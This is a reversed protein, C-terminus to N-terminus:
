QKWKELYPDQGQDEEFETASKRIRRTGAPKDIENMIYPDLNALYGIRMLSLNSIDNVYDDDENGAMLQWGSDEDDHPEERMMYGVKWGDETIRKSVVAYKSMLEKRIISPECYKRHDLFEEIEQKTPERETKIKDIASDWIKKDDANIRRLVALKLLEEKAVDLCLKIEKKLNKGHEDYLYLETDGADYVTMKVAGLNDKDNYFVFFNPLHENVFYDFETGNKGNMYFVTGNDELDESSVEPLHEALSKRILEQIEQLIRNM